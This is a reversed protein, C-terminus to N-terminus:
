KLLGKKVLDDHPLKCLDRIAEADTKTSVSTTHEAIWKAFDHIAFLRYQQAPAIAEWQEATLVVGPGKRPMTLPKRPM